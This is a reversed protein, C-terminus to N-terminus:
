FPESTASGNTSASKATVISVGTADGTITAEEAISGDWAKERVARAFTLALEYAAGGPRDSGALDPPVFFGGGTPEWVNFITSTAACDGLGVLVLDLIQEARSKHEIELAGARPSQAYITIKAGVNRVMRHVPNPRQSQTAVFRDGNPQHELVIRERGFTATQSGEPGDVVPIPCGRAQLMSQLQVGIRHLMM